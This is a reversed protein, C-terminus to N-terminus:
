SSSQRQRTEFLWGAPRYVSVWGALWDVSCLLLSKSSSNRSDFLGIRKITPILIITGILSCRIKKAMPKNIYGKLTDIVLCGISKGIQKNLVLAGIISCEFGKM